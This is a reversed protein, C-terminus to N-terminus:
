CEEECPEYVQYWCNATCTGYASNNQCYWTDYCNQTCTINLCSCALFCDGSPCSPSSEPRGASCQLAQAAMPTDLTYLVGLLAVLRALRAM